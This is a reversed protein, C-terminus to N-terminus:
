VMKSEVRGDITKGLSRLTILIDTFAIALSFVITIIRNLYSAAKFNLNVLDSFLLLILSVCIFFLLINKLYILKLFGKKIISEKIDKILLLSFVVMGALHFFFTEDPANRAILTVILTFALFFAMIILLRKSLMKKHRMAITLILIIGFFIIGMIIYSLSLDSANMAMLIALIAYSVDMTIVLLHLSQFERFLFMRHYISTVFAISLGILGFLFAEFLYTGFFQIGVVEISGPEIFITFLQNTLPIIIPLFAFSTIFITFYLLRSFRFIVIKDENTYKCQILYRNRILLYIVLGVVTFLILFIFSFWNNNRMETVFFLAVSLLYGFVIIINCIISYTIFNSKSSIDSKAINEKRKGSLLEDVTVGLVAALKPLISVDPFGDGVEWRSIAKDTVQILEALENQTLKREKRLQCIFEGTAKPNM